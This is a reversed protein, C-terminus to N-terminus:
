AVGLLLMNAATSPGPPPAAGGAILPIAVHNWNAAASLTWNMVVSAAGGETSAAGLLNAATIAFNRRQTQGAGVTVTQGTATYVSLFDAVMNGAASTVTHTPNTDNGTGPLGVITGFPNTQDVGTFSMGTCVVNRAVTLSAVVNHAGTPPALLSFVVTSTLNGNDVDWIKNMTLGNYTCTQLGTTGGYRQAFGALLIGDTATGTCTHSFTFVSTNGDDTSVADVAVAM